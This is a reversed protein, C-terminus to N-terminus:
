WKSEFSLKFMLDNNWRPIAQANPSYVDLNYRYYDATFVLAPQTMSSGGMWSSADMRVAAQYQTELTDHSDRWGRAFGSVAWSEGLRLSARATAAYAFTSNRLNDRPYGQERPADDDIELFFWGAGAELSAQFTPNGYGFVLAPLATMQREVSSVTNMRTDFNATWGMRLGNDHWFDGDAGLHLQWWIPIHDSDLHDKDHDWYLDFSGFTHMGNDYRKDVSVGGNLGWTQSDVDPVTFDHVGLSYRWDAAMGTSAASVLFLATLARSLKM